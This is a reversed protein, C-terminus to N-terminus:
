RVTDDIGTLSFHAGRETTMFQFYSYLVAQYQDFGPVRSLTAGDADMWSWDAQQAWMLKSTRLGYMTGPQCADDTFIPNEDFMIASYGGQLQQTNVHRKMPLQTDAYNSRVGRTTILIFEMGAEDLGTNFGVTDKALRLADDSIAGISGATYAAWQPYLTPSIGHVTGTAAVFKSLGNIERNWSNNPAAITSNSSARVFGTTTGTMGTTLAPSVTLTRNARDVSTIVRAPEIVVGTSITLGDVIEGIRFNVTTDVNIVTDAAASNGRSIARVGNGSNFAAQNTDIRASKTLRNMSEQFAGKFASEGAGVAKMLQGTLSFTAYYYRLPDAALVYKDNGPQAFRENELRFGGAPNNQLHIRLKVTGDGPTVGEASQRIGPFGTPNANHKGDTGQDSTSGDLLVSGQHCAERVEGTAAVLLAGM